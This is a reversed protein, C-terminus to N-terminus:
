DVKEYETYDTIGKGVNPVFHSYVIDGVFLVILGICIPILIKQNIRSWLTDLMPMALYVVAAGGLAFVMLGEACIRGNLNLFYGTYDWYRLGSSMEIFLSTLYELCGCLLIISVIEVQPKKRFRALLLLILVLGGGYIPLWPGHLAGRNVFVGDKVLHITVEWLWGVFAFTFFALIISWITYPRLYRINRLEITARQDMLPNLRQPYTRGKIADREEAIQARRSELDEYENREKTHGLWLGLNKVLFGHTGTLVIRHEDIYAKQEEVDPYSARLFPEDAAEFLYVDDLRETGEMGAEKSMSRLHTYYESYTGLRYPLSWFLEALGFTAAGLIMWGIFSLDIKFCEWKHGYMMRRSLAIAEKPKIDPNEAAIFPVLFYSYRKIIGGVITLSWLYLRVETLLLTMATRKWRKVVKFHLLHGVPVKKYIRSELFARRLVVQYMNKIFAWVLASLIMSLFIFIGTAVSSSSKFMSRMGEVILVYLRGSTIVNIVPALSGNQRGIVGGLKGKEYEKMQRDAEKKGAELNNEALEQYVKEGGSPNSLTVDKDEADIEQGTVAARLGNTMDKVYSFETGYMVAILCLVVLLLYHGKVVKRAKAKIAKRGDHRLLDEKKVKEENM